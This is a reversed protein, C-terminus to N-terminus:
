DTNLNMSLFDAYYTDYSDYLKMIRALKVAIIHACPKKAKLNFQFDMCTCFNGEVVYKHTGVVVFFDRYKKVRREKLYFFAKEGRRGYNLLLAKYLEYPLSDGKEKWKRAAEVVDDPLSFGSM